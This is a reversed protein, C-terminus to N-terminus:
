RQRHNRAFTCCVRTKGSGGMGYVVFIRQRDNNESITSFFLDTEMTQIVEERGVFDTLAERPLFFFENFAGTESTRRHTDEIHIDFDFGTLEYVEESRIRVLHAAAKEWRRSILTSAARTYRLLAAIVTRYSSSNASAHKVMDYHSAYIGARETDDLIPAASHDEVMYDLRDGFETMMDEWFFYVHFHKLLSTFRTNISHIIEFDAKPARINKIKDRLRHSHHHREYDLWNSMEHQSHPTGLFMIAYTSVFISYYIEVKASTQTSSHILAQKVILGGLGHCIFIIPRRECAELERDTQLSTILNVAHNRIARECGGGFFKSASPDYEFALIRATRISRPLLDRLWLIGSKEDKWGDEVSHNLDHIAVISYTNAGV